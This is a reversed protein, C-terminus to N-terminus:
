IYRTVIITTLAFLIGGWLTDIILAKIPWADFLAYNTTEFVGYILIGLLFADMWTKGPQIIFYILGGVLLAYCLVAGTLNLTLSRQQIKRVVDGFFGKVASLYIYDLAIMVIAVFFILKWM